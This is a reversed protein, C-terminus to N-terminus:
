QGNGEQAEEAPSAGGTLAGIILNRAWYEYFSPQLHIGDGAYEDIHEAATADNDGFIFGNEECMKKAGASFDPIKTWRKAAAGTVPIISSVVIKAHPAVDQISRIADLFAEGYKEGDPWEKVATDNIGYCLFVYSPNLTKLTGLQQSIGYLTAGSSALVRSDELFRYYSFGVARSDGMLVYDEFMSWVDKEGSEIQAILSNRLEEQRRTEKLRRIEEDVAATDASAVAALYERGPALDDTQLAAKPAGFGVAGLVAACTLLVATIIAAPRLGRIEKSEEM